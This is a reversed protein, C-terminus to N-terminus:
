ALDESRADEQANAEAAQALTKRAEKELDKLNFKSQACLDELAVSYKTSWLDYFDSEFILEFCRGRLEDETLKELGKSPDDGLQDRRRDHVQGNSSTFLYGTLWRWFAKTPERKEWREVIQAVALPVTARMLARKKEEREKAKRRDEQEQAVDLVPPPKPLEFKHGAAQLAQHAEEAKLLEHVHGTRDRAIVVAPAQKGLLKKFTRNKPDAACRANLEVYGSRSDLSGFSFIQSSEKKTLVEQGEEKAKVVRLKWFRERKEGFCDPDTCVDAPAVDQFLVGQNGTRKPCTTCPGAEPFLAADATDFPAKALGLTYRELLLGRAQAITLPSGLVGPGRVDEAAKERVEAPLLSV